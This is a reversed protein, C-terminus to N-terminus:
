PQTEAKYGTCNGCSQNAFLAKQESLVEPRAECACTGVFAALDVELKHEL